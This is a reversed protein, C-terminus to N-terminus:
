DGDTANFGIVVGLEIAVEEHIFYQLQELKNYQSMVTRYGDKTQLLDFLSSDTPWTDKILSFQNQISDALVVKGRQRLRADLGKGDALYLAEMAKVNNLLNSMSSRSRWSEAFYPRPQGIKAMPRSLKKMSYDLQNTLLAIYESDWAKQDLGVWPNSNWAASISHANNALNQSIAYGTQCVQKSNALSSREDYLLWEIAGLGQVTVSQEAIDSQSWPQTSSTLAQMKRGTTNKKDPWFQVNWSQELAKSPGREQGQLAMWATMAAHWDTKLQALEVEGNCYSQFTQSLEEAKTDFNAAAVFEVQYVAQSIHNTQQALSEIAKTESTTQCAALSLVSTVAVSLKYINM